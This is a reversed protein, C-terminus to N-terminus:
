ESLWLQQYITYPSCVKLAYRLATLAAEIADINQSTNKV